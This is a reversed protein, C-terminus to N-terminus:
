YQLRILNEILTGDRADVPVTGSHPPLPASCGIAVRRHGDDLDSSPIVIVRGCASDLHRALAGDSETTV